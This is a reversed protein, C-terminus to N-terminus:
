PVCAEWGAMRLSAGGRADKEIKLGIIGWLDFIDELRGLTYIPHEADTRARGNTVLALVM